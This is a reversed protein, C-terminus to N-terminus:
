KMAFRSFATKAEFRSEKAKELRFNLLYANINEGTEKKFLHSIYSRNMHVYDALEDLSIPALYNIDVYEIIKCVAESYISYKQKLLAMFAEMQSLSLKELDELNSSNSLSIIADVSFQERQNEDLYKWYVNLLSNLVLRRIVPLTPETQRIFAFIQRLKEIIEDLNYTSLLEELDKFKQELEPYIRSKQKKMTEYDLGGTKQYFAQYRYVDEAFEHMTDLEECSYGCPSVNVSIDKYGFSAFADYFKETFARM